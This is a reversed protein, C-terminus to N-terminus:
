YAAGEGRGLENLFSAAQNRIEAKSGESFRDWNRYPMALRRNEGLKERHRALFDWYLSNFPCADEGVRKNVDYRCHQCYDSMRNIYAGSSVYPKSSLLGGDGFQSMGLTNPLEVWEYADLYVELYWLHVRKPDAGMLLAFNGTVM